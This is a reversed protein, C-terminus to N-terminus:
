RGQVESRRERHDETVRTLADHSAEELMILGDEAEPLARLLEDLKRQIATQGRSQTHQIVFVMVLTVASVATTFAINWRSSFHMVAGAAVGLVVAIAVILAAAPFSSYRSISHLTRSGRSLQDPKAENRNMQRLM